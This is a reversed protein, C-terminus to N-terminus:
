RRAEYADNSETVTGAPALLESVADADMDAIAAKIHQAAIISPAADKGITQIAAHHVSAAGLAAILLVGDLALLGVRGARLTRPTNWRPTHAAQGQAAQQMVATAM